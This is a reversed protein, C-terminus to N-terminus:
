LSDYAVGRLFRSGGGVWTPSTECNLSMRPLIWAGGDGEMDYHETISGYRNIAMGYFSQFAM